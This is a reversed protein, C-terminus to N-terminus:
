WAPGTPINLINNANKRLANGATLMTLHCILIMGIAVFNESNEALLSQTRQLVSETLTLKLIVCGVIAISTCEKLNGSMTYVM